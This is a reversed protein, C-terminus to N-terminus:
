TKKPRISACTASNTGVSAWSAVPTSTRGCAQAKAPHMSGIISSKWGRTALHTRRQKKNLPRPQQREREISENRNSLHRMLSHLFAMTHATPATLSQESLTVSPLIINAMTFLRDKEKPMISAIPVGAKATDGMFWRNRSDLNIFALPRAWYLGMTLKWGLGFQGVTKDFAAAFANRNEPNDADALALEAEFLDWLNDIDSEGRRSDGIFAYFTANLNNLLPTGAFDNPLEATICFVDALAAVIKRRNQSSIGKNFLGFITFPDIDNPVGGDDLKPLKTDISEYMAQLKDILAARDNKYPLLKNALETYFPVWTYLEEAM